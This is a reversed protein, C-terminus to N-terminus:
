TITYFFFFVRYKNKQINSSSALKLQVPKTSINNTLTDYSNYIYKKKPNKKQFKRLMKM